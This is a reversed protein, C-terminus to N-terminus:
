VGDLVAMYLEDMVVFIVPEQSEALLDLWTKMQSLYGPTDDTALLDFWQNLIGALKQRPGWAVMRPVWRDQSGDSVVFALDRLEEGSALIPALLARIVRTQELSPTVRPPDLTRPM